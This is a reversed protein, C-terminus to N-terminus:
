LDRYQQIAIMNNNAKALIIDQVKSDDVAFTGGHMTSIM